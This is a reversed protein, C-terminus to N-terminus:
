AKGRGQAEFTVALGQELRGLRAGSVDGTMRLEEHAEFVVSLNDVPPRATNTGGIIQLLASRMSSASQAPDMSGTIM